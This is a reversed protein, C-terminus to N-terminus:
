QDTKGIINKIDDVKENPIAISLHYHEIKWEDEYKKLVGSARCLGLGTNLKEDFWSYTSDVSFYVNREITEFNWAKGSDFYKKAWDYFEKKTWLESADTGIYIGNDAIKDFYRLDVDAANKHWENVFDNIEAELSEANDTVPVQASLLVTM